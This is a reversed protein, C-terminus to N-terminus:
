ALSIQQKMEALSQALKQRQEPQLALLEEVTAELPIIGVAQGIALWSYVGFHANNGMKYQIFDISRPTRYQWAQKLATYQDSLPLKQAAQWFATDARGTDYHMRIFDRIGRWSQANQENFDDIAAQSIVYDSQSLTIAFLETQMLMQGISTAELPEVFGSALGVALVNKQWVKEYFGAEFRITSIPEIRHGLWNQVEDVAQEPTLFNSDFVYGAGIREQLPIQWVWGSSMATARTVLDPNSQQHKLHFPIATNMPLYKNFSQWHSNFKKGIVLRSFGSADVLFDLAIKEDNVLISTVHGTEADQIIEKVLGQKHTIGRRLAIKRLYQGVKYTDFHFSSDFLKNEGNVLMQTLAHQSINKERLAISDVIHSVPISHNTMASLLPFYGQKQWLREQNIVPFMHYFFDNKDQHSTCWGEYVFGLKHVAGTENLFELLPIDLRILADIFNVIGGEGVGVIPIEPASILEIQVSSGFSKRLELAAFWGATGAGLVCIKKIHRLNLM